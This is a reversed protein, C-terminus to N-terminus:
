LGLHGPTIKKNIANEKKLWSDLTSFLFKNFYKIKKLLHGIFYNYYKALLNKVVNFTLKDTSTLQCIAVIFNTTSSALVEQIMVIVSFM